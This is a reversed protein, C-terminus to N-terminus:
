IFQRQNMSRIHVRNLIDTMEKFGSLFAGALSHNILSIRIILINDQKDPAVQFYIFRFQGIIQTILNM